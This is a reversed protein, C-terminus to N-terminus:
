TETELVICNTFSIWSSWERMSNLSYSWPSQHKMNQIKACDTNAALQHTCCGMAPNAERLTWRTVVSLCGCSQGVQHYYQCLGTNESLRPILVKSEYHSLALVFGVKTTNLLLRKEKYNSTRALCTYKHIRSCINHLDRVCNVLQLRHALLKKMQIGPLHFDDTASM